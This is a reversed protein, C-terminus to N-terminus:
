KRTSVNPRFISILSALCGPNSSGGITIGVGAWGNKVAQQELSNAGYLEGAVAHTLDAANQFSSTSNLRDSLAVYWIKGAKEWAYGGIEYAALYFAKNPIGSNIHVGGNDELTNVYRSMHDPQPDKGIVPDNYATGPAKMSRIGVGNVNVTFLGAGIIWDASRADQGLSRQKVLSGFV